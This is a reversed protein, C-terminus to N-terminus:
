LELYSIVEDLDPLVTHGLALLATDPQVLEPIQIVHMGAAHAARVGNPSDELAICHEPDTQLTAAAKLYIDPAPKGNEIQDGGIIADFRHLLGSKHLKDRARDSRTSTAVAMPVKYRGLADLLNEVGKMLPVGASTVRLYNDLWESMFLESDISDPLTKKLILQTTQDNTGLIRNYLSLQDGLQHEDCKEQFTRLAIKESDILLGDMDFISASYKM